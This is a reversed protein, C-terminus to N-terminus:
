LNDPTELKKVEKAKELNQDNHEECASVLVIPVIYTFIDMSAAQDLMGSLEVVLIALLAFIKVPTFRKFVATYKAFYFYLMLVTGVIGLSTLWQLVTNHALVTNTFDRLSPIPEDAIFGYGFVPYELFANWCWPWLEGRGNLGSNIKEFVMNVTSLIFDFFFILVIGCVALITLFVWLFNLRKPSYIVFLVAITAVALASILMITRCCTLVVAFLLVLSLLFYLYDFKKGCGLCYCGVIGLMIFVSATNLPQASFFFLEGEPKGIFITGVLSLRGICIVITLFIAGVIFLYGLYKSLNQTRNRSLFYCVFSLVCFAFVTLTTIINFRGIVGGLLFAVSSIAIGLYMKGKKITKRELILIKLTYAVLSLFAIGICILYGLWLTGADDVNKIFFSVYFFFAFFNSINKCFLLVLSATIAFIAVSGLSFSFYWCLVGSVFILPPLYWSELFSRFINLIKYKNTTIM